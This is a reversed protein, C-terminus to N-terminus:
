LNFPDVLGEQIHYDLTNEFFHYGELEIVDESIEVPEQKLYGSYVLERIANNYEEETTKEFHRRLVVVSNHESFQLIDYLVFASKSLSLRARKHAEVDIGSESINHIQVYYPKEIENM